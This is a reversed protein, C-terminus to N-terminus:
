NGADPARTIARRMGALPATDDFVIKDDKVAVGLRRWLDDLDAYVATAKQHEYLESFVPVGTAEDAAQLFRVLPWDIENNGGAAVIAALADELSHHNATRTRIDIDALLCFLAGGWYTRGWTHTHDLGQDGTKPLGQPMGWLFHRWVYEASVLGAQARAIPEVYTALGEELWLQEKPLQPLSVHVMEHTLVWSRIVDADSATTGLTIRTASGRYGWSTGHIASGPVEVVLVRLREVSFRGFYTTIARASDRVWALIAERRQPSAAPVIAVDIKGSGIFVTSSPLDDFRSYPMHPGLYESQDQAVADPIGCLVISALTAGCVAAQIRTKIAPARYRM